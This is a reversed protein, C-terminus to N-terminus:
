GVGPSVQIDARRHYVPVLEQAPRWCVENAATLRAVVLGSPASDRRSVLRPGSWSLDLLDPYAEFGSGVAVQLSPLRALEEAFQTPTRVDTALLTEFAQATRRFLGCYLESRRADLAVAVTGSCAEPLHQHALLELTDWGAVPCVAVLATTKAVTIGLRVGTFSGPGQTVGVASLADVKVEATKLLHAIAAPM